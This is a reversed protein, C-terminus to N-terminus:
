GTLCPLYGRDSELKGTTHKGYNVSLAILSPQIKPTGKAMTSVQTTCFNCYNLRTRKTRTVPIRWTPCNHEAWLGLTFYAIAKKEGGIIVRATRYMVSVMSLKTKIDVIMRPPTHDKQYSQSIGTGRQM